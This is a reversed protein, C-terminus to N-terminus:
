KIASASKNLYRSYIRQYAGNEHLRDLAMQWRMITQDPIMKSAAINLSFEVVKVGTPVLADPAEDMSKLYYALGMPTFNALLDSQGRLVHRIQDRNKIISVQNTFGLADLRANVMGGHSVVISQVARIDVLDSFLRSDDKRKYFHIAERVLPGVWKYQEEREPTRFFSFAMVNPLVRLMEHTRPGPYVRIDHDEGLENMLGRVIEVSFGTLQGDRTYNYPPWEETILLLDEADDAMASWSCSLVLCIILLYRM